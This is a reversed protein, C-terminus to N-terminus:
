PPAVVAGSLAPRLERLLARPHEVDDWTYTAFEDGRARAERRRQHDQEWAHRSNHYRYSQLEVTLRYEPWRCDVRHAGAPRNTEPLPLGAKRVLALFRSELKSLTVKVDGSMVDRLTQGGRANPVRALVANVQRPTTAYRVGAEHCARALDDPELVAALDVLTRPISTVPIGRVNTADRPHLERCRSAIGPRRRATPATVEPRPARGKLIGHVHGAARGSLVAAEGCALIAALYTAETSPARHGVRYVGHHERLLVGSEVRTTIEKASVGAALLQARTVVGHQRNAIPGIQKSAKTVKPRMPAM